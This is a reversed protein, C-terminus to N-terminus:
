EVLLTLNSICYDFSTRVAQSSPVLFGIQQLQTTDLPQPVPEPSQVETFMVVNTGVQVPSSPFFEAAGWYSPGLLVEDSPTPLVVRLGAEPINDIDFSIGIVHHSQADFVGGPVGGSADAFALGIGAGWMHAYDFGDGLPLVLATSGSTCMVGGSNPFGEALPDPESILSCEAEDHVAQCVGPPDGSVDYSDAFVLWQGEIGFSNTNADVAGTEDPTLAVANPPEPSDPPQPCDHRPEHHRRGRHHQKWRRTHRSGKAKDSATHAATLSAERLSAPTDSALSGDEAAGGCAVASGLSTLAYAYGLSKLNLM